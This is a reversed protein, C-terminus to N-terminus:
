VVVFLPAKGRGLAALVGLASACIEGHDLEHDLDHEVEADAHVDADVDAGADVEGGAAVDAHVAVDADEAPEGGLGLLQVVLLLLSIALLSTYPLNYWASLFSWLENLM